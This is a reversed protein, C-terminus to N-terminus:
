HRLSSGRGRHRRLTASPSEGFMAHYDTAFHGFHFFGFQTATATVSAATKLRNRVWNLRLTNLWALPSMGWTVHFCNQLTRRSVGLAQCMEAITPPTELRSMVFQRARGELVSQLSSVASQRSTAQHADAFPVLAAALKNLLEDRLQERQSEICPLGSHQTASVFLELAFRRLRSIAAADGTHLRARRIFPSADDQFEDIMLSEFLPMDIEFGLMVHRRPSRFEFGDAGSFVHLKSVDGPLGCFDSDGNLVIPVGFAAVQSHVMGTQHVTQRLDEIFLGIGNMKLRKVGGCFVGRSLQLYRQNWGNLSAAQEDIDDFMCGSLAKGLADDFAGSHM